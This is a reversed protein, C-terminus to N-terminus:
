DLQGLGCEDLWRSFMRKARSALSPGLEATDARLRRVDVKHLALECAHGVLWHEIATARAEPHFQVALGFADLAFAQNPVEATSALASTGQPLDFTDGHWHLIPQGDGLESLCTDRGDRTIALSKWGIERVPAGHVRAGLARAMMQAGLCVGLIPKAADIRAKILDLEALIRPYAAEECAGIPGGLVCLLAPAAPEIAELDDLCADVYRINYGRGVLVEEFTGLDEFAVHRLALAEKRSPLVPTM